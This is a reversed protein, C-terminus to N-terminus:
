PAIPGTVTKDAPVVLVPCPAHRLVWETTSGFFLKGLVSRPRAGVVILTSLRDAVTDVLAEGAMGPVLQLEIEDGEPLQSKLREHLLGVLRSQVEEYPAATPEVLSADLPSAMAHVVCLCAQLSQALKLSVTVAPEHGPKLQCGVIVTKPSWAMPRTTDPGTSFPRVVLLPVNLRRALREVVTGLLLRQVGSLDHSATVVLDVNGRGVAKVIQDVPEGDAIEPCGNVSVAAMLDGMTAVAQQRLRRTKAPRELMADTSYLDDKPFHVSHFVILEGRLSQTLAGACALVSPTFESFDIACLVRKM